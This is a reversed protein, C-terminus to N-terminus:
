LIVWRAGSPVTVSIGSNVTIPGVSSANKGTTMTYNATITTSNEVLVEDAGGGTAGGGVSGWSTGNYGEFKDVDTNFRFYGAVPTGDRQAETGAPMVASGTAGTRQVYADADTYATSWASGTYVKMYNTSTNFYLAGTLLANGDNDLTPDSSKPGLYRDDFNDYIAATATESALAADASADAAVASGAALGAQVGAAAQAAEAALQAVVAAAQAAEANVEALEANVEATEANAEALEAAVKAAEAANKYALASAESADSNVESVLAAAASAAAATAAAEAAVVSSETLENIDTVEQAIELTQQFNDDMSDATFAANGSGDGRYGFIHEVTNLQSIRRVLVEVGAPVAPTFTIATETPGAWAWNTTNEVGDYFVHITARDTYDFSLALYDLTGDSTVQQLSYAM